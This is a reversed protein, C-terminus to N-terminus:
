GWTSKVMVHTGLGLSYASMLQLFQPQPLCHRTDLRQEEVGWQVEESLVLFQNITLGDWCRLINVVNELELIYLFMRPVFVRCSIKDSLSLVASTFFDEMRIWSRVQCGARWTIRWCSSPAVSGQPMLTSLTSTHFISWYCKRTRNACGDDM